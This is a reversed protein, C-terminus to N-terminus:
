MTSAPESGKTTRMLLELLVPHWLVSSFGASPHKMRAALVGGLPHFPTTDPNGSFGGPSSKLVQWWLQYGCVLIADPKHAAIIAQFPEAGALFMSYSPRIRAESAVFVPVYQYFAISNWIDEVELQTMSWKSKGSVVQTIGTFFRHSERIAYQEVVEKTTGPDCQGILHPKDPNCYHSEGLVLLRNGKLINKNNGWDNGIWPDFMM